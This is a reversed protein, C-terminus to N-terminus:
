VPAAFRLVQDFVPLMRRHFRNHLREPSAIASTTSCSPGVIITLIALLPRFCHRGL